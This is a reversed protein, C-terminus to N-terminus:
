FLNKKKKERKEKEIERNRKKEKRKKIQPVRTFEPTFDDITDVHTKLMCIQPGVKEALSLIENCKSLDASVCLNSKKEEMLNFLRKALKNLSSLSPSFLVSLFDFVSLFFFVIFYSVYFFIKKKKKKQFISFFFMGFANQTIQARQSYSLPLTVKKVPLEVARNDNLFKTALQYVSELSILVIQM